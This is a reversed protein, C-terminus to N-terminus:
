PTADLSFTAGRVNFAATVRLHLEGTSTQVVCTEDVTGLQSSLCLQNQFTAGDYVWLSLNETLDSITVTYDTAAARGTIKYYSPGNYVTGSWPTAGTM